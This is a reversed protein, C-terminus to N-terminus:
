LAHTVWHEARTRTPYGAMFYRVGAEEKPWGPGPGSGYSLQFYLGPGSGSGFRGPQFDDRRRGPVDIAHICLRIMVREKSIKNKRIMLRMKSIFSIKM